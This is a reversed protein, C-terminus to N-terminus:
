NQEEPPLPAQIAELAYKRNDQTMSTTFNKVYEPVEKVNGQGCPVADGFTQWIPIVGTWVKNTVEPNQTDKKEDSMGGDRIKGSGAVIKVRLITTSQLEGGDPPSRSNDWRTPVISDTIIKMAYLKEEINTVVKAYGHLVVSRYNYSHSYPTLSMILGDLYTASICVPLGEGESARALNMMRGSVYGHIYCDLPDEVSSSPYDFSGMQGIMPLTAPFPDDGGPNFSVHLVHSSNVINHIAGLDYTVRQSYRNATNSIGKPYVLTRGM